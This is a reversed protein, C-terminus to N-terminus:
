ENAALRRSIDKVAAAGQGVASAVTLSSHACVDGAAYIWDVTTRQRADTEVFGRADLSVLDRVIESNSVVGLCPFVADTRLEHQGEPTEVRICEVRDTGGIEVVSSNMLATIRESSAVRRRFDPRGSFTAGRHVITVEECIKALILAEELAADGGGVVVVCAGSYADAHKTASGHVGREAFTEAGPVELKRARVGTAVLVFNTGIPEGAVVVTRSGADIRTAAAATRIEVSRSLLSSEFQQALAAGNSVEIGPYNAIGNYVRRLQGGTQPCAEASIAHLHLDDAWIAASVGAPGSGVIVLDYQPVTM